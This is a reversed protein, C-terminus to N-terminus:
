LLIRYLAILVCVVFLIVNTFVNRPENRKYHIVAAFPMILSLCLASLPTLWPLINVATPLILAVSGAIESIGIFKIFAPHLGEVGTQGMTILRMEPFISKCIGSYLFIMASVIQLVWIIINIM